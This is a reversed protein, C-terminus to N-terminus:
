LWQGHDPVELFDEGSNVAKGSGVQKTGFAATGTVALVDGGIRDDGYTANGTLAADYVKDIGTASVNITRATIDASTAASTSAGCTGPRISFTPTIKGPAPEFM